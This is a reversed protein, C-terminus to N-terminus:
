FSINVGEVGISLALGKGSVAKLHMVTGDDNKLWTGTKDGAVITMGAEAKFYLGDFDEVRELNYVEGVIDQGTIGMGGLKAGHMHFLKKDGNYNLTGHGIDGNLIFGFQTEKIEVTASPKTEAKEHSGAGVPNAGTVLMLGLGLALTAKLTKMADNEMPEDNIGM